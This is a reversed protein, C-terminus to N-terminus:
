PWTPRTFILERAKEKQKDTPKKLTPMSKPVESYAVPGRRGYIYVLEQIIKDKEGFTLSERYHSVYYPALTNTIRGMPTYLPANESKMGCKTEHVGRWWYKSNSVTCCEMILQIAETWWDDKVKCPEAKKDPEIFLLHFNDTRIV